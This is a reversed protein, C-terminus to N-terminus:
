RLSNVQTTFVLNTTPVDEVTNAFFKEFYWCINIKIEKAISKPKWQENM